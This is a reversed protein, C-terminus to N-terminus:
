SGLDLGSLELHTHICTHAYHAYYINLHFNSDNCIINNVPGRARACVCVFVCWLHAHGGTNGDALKEGSQVIGLLVTDKVHQTRAHAKIPISNQTRTHAHAKKPPPTTMSLTQVWTQRHSFGSDQGVLRYSCNSGTKGEGQTNRERGGLAGEHRRTSGGPRMRVCMDVRM